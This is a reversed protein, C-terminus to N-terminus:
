HVSVLPMSATDAVMCSGLAFWKCIASTHLDGLTEWLVVIVKSVLSNVSHVAGQTISPSKLSSIRCQWFGAMKLRDLKLKLCITCYGVVGWPGAISWTYKRFIDPQLKNAM